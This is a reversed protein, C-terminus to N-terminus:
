HYYHLPYNLFEHIFLIIFYYFLLIIIFLLLLLLFSKKQRKSANKYIYINDEFIWM